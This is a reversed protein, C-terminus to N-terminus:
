GRHILAENLASIVGNIYDADNGSLAQAEGSSSNLVVAHVAKQNYLFYAAGAAIVLGILRGMGEAGFLIGLGILVGIIGGMRSPQTVHSKVSTVGNMAYTQNGVIFRANTVKVNGQEFFTREDM